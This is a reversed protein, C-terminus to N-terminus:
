VVLQYLSDIDNNKKAVILTLHKKPTKKLGVTLISGEPPLLKCKTSHM